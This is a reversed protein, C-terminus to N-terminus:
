VCNIDQGSFDEIMNNNNVDAALRVRGSPTIVIGKARRDDGSGECLKLTRAPAMAYGYRNFRILGEKDSDLDENEVLSDGSDQLGQHVRIVQSGDTIIWGGSWDAQQNCASLDANATCIDVDRSRKIAESRAFHIDAVLENIEVTMRSNTAISQYSPVGIIAAVALIMIM